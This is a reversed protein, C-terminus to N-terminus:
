VKRTCRKCQINGVETPNESEIKKEKEVVKVMKLENGRRARSHNDKGVVNDELLMNYKGRVDDKKLEKDSRLEKVRELKRGKRM